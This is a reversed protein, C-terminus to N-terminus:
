KTEKAYGNEEKSKVHHLNHECYALNIMKEKLDQLSYFYQNSSEYGVRSDKLRLDITRQVTDMEEHIIRLMERRNVADAQGADEGRRNVFQIHHYASEYHCLVTEAMLILEDLKESCNQYPKLMKIGEKWETCLKRYQDEFIDVPFIAKWSTMDDYPYGIMSASYGTSHLFFPAMPGYNQPGFYLTGIHFPFQSFAQSLKKQAEDAVDGLEEGLWNKLFDKVTGKGDMLWAVLSLNPSPCGGLTWSAQLHQVGQEKLQQIHQAIKDFVPIYPVAALEWTVNMQVKASVQLGNERATKWIKKAIEGPGCLSMTYDEVIGKIGSICYEMALESNCQVIQKESLLEVGKDAWKPDWGWVWVIAKAAPAADHAGKAMLNNVEAVIEWPERERCRPCEIPEGASRSICNTLNESMTITIFGALDPVLTFLKNVAQYLYEKVEPTSTCMSYFDYERSGRLEPYKEFFNEPMGRPENLYPYIGIGYKKAKAVLKRLNRIRTEWGKSVSPEFPFEVLQYLVLQMWIGNIGAKAYEVLLSDPFPDISDDILTDGFLAFYPYVIRLNDSGKVIPIKTDPVQKKYTEIFSFANDKKGYGATFRNELLDKIKRTQQLQEKTLPAYVPMEVEPKLEGLKCWMFDDEKLIFALKEETINLLTLIQEYTCLHWNDRILTLFGRKKWEPNVSEEPNLGLQAAAEKINEVKTQLAAAIRETPLYGWNRWVVAQWITPFYRYEISKKKIGKPLIDM